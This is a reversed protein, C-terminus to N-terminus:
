CGVSYSSALSSCRETDAAAGLTYYLVNEFKNKNVPDGYRLRKSSFKWDTVPSQLQVSIVPQAILLDREQIQSSLCM